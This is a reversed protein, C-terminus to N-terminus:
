VVITLTQEDKIDISVVELDALKESECASQITYGAASLLLQDPNSSISIQAEFTEAKVNIYRINSDATHCKRAVENFKM